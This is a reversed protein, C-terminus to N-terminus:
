KLGSPIKKDLPLPLVHSITNIFNSARFVFNSVIEFNLNELSTKSKEM